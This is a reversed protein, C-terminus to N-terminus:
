PKKSPTVFSAVSDAITEMMDLGIRREGNAERSLILRIKIINELM